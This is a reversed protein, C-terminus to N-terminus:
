KQLFHHALLPVGTGMAGKALHEDDLERDMRPAIDLHVFNDAFGGKEAFRRLFLAASCAGGHKTFMCANVMDARYGELYFGYRDDMPMPWVPDFTKKGGAFLAQSLADNTTFMGSFAGGLGIACAGTLTAITFVEVPEYKRAHYLADALVLRGEADTNSIDIAIGAASLIIDDPRYSADSVTNEVAPVIAIVNVPAKLEALANVIELAAAGGSMDLHMGRMADPLKMSNGGTDYCVGKGIVVHNPGGPKGRYELEIFRPLHTRSGGGVALILHMKQKHLWTEGFTRVNVTDPHLKGIARAHEALAEPTVINAGTEALTRANNACEGIVSGIRIAGELGPVGSSIQVEGLRPKKETKFVDFDYGAMVAARAMATALEHPGSMGPDLELFDSLELRISTLELKLAERVVQRVLAEARYPGKGIGVYLVAVRGSGEHYDTLVRKSDQVLSVETTEGERKETDVISFKM